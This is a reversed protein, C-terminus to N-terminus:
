ILNLEIAKKIAQTRRQVDLKAFLNQNHSKVTNLSIYLKEAIEQNSHGKAMERLIEMERPRLDFDEPNRLKVEPKSKKSLQLGGWIGLATFLLAVAFFVVNRLLPISTWKWELFAYILLLAGLSLGYKVLTRM